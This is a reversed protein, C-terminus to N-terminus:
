SNTANINSPESARLSFRVLVLGYAATLTEMAAAMGFLDGVLGVAFAGMMSGFDRGTRMLALTQSRTERSSVDAAYVNLITDQACNGLAFISLCVLVENLSSTFPLLGIGAATSIGAPVIVRKRGVRDSICACLPSGLVHVAAVLMFCSGVATTSTGLSGTLFLPLCTYISGSIIMWFASQLAVVLRVNENQCIIRWQRISDIMTKGFPKYHKSSTVTEPMRLSLVSIGAIVTGVVFFPTRIGFNDALVGGLWPGIMGGASLSMMLPAMMQARNAETSIDTLYLQAASFQASTGLGQVFRGALFMPLNQATGLFITSIATVAAGGVLFPKRGLKDCLATTPLHTFMRAFGIVAFTMGIESLSFGLQSAFIPLIPLVMHMSVGLCLSSFVIPYLRKDLSSGSMSGQNKVQMVLRLSVRNPNQERHQCFNVPRKRSVFFPAMSWQGSSLAV